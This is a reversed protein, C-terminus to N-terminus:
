ALYEFVYSSLSVLMYTRMTGHKRCVIVGAVLLALVPLNFFVGRLSTPIVNLWILAWGLFLAPALSVITLPLMKKPGEEMTCALWASVMSFIAIMVVRLTIPVVEGLFPLLLCLCLIVTATLTFANRKSLDKEM